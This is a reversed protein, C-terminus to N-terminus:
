CVCVAGHCAFDVMINNAFDAVFFDFVLFFFFSLFFFFFVAKVATADKIVGNM